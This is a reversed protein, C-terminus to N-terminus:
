SVNAFVIDEPENGSSPDLQDSRSGTGPPDPVDAVGNFVGNVTGGLSYIGGGFLGAFVSSGAQNDIVSGGNLKVVGQEDNFIGGGFFATNDSIEANSSLIVTGGAFNYVGGGRFDASNGKITGDELHLVGAFNHIGGGINIVDGGPNSGDDSAARNNSITTGGSVTVTGQFNMIGGGLEAVNGSITPGNVILSGGDNLIGGAVVPKQGDPGIERVGTGGTLTLSGTLNLTAGDNTLIRGQGQADITGDGTLTLDKNNTIGYENCIGTIVLVDGTKAAVIAEQIPTAGATQADCDVRVASTAPATAPTPEPVPVPPPAPTPSTFRIILTKSRLRNKGCRTESDFSCYRSADPVMARVKVRNLNEFSLTKHFKGNRKTKTKAIRVWKGTGKKRKLKVTVKKPQAGVVKGKVKLRQDAVVTKTKAWLKVAHKQARKHEAVVESLESSDLAVASGAPIMLGVVVAGAAWTTFSSHRM